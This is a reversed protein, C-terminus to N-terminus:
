TSEVFLGFKFASLVLFSVVFCLALYCYFEKPFFEVELQQSNETVPIKLFHDKSDSLNNWPGKEFRYRWGSFFRERIYVTDNKKFAALIDFHGDKNEFVCLGNLRAYNEPCHNELSNQTSSLIEIRPKWDKLEYVNIDNIKQLFKLSDKQYVQLNSVNSLFYRASLESATQNANWNWMLPLHASVHKVNFISHIGFSYANKERDFLEFHSVPDNHMQWMELGPYELFHNVRWYPSTKEDLAMATVPLNRYYSAPFLYFHDWHIRVLDGLLILFFFLLYKKPNKFTFWLCTLSILLFVCDIFGNTVLNLIKQQFNKTPDLHKFHEFHSLGSLLQSQLSPVFRLLGFFLFALLTSFGLVLIFKEGKPKAIWNQFGHGSLAALGFIFLIVYRGPRRFNNLVPTHYLLQSAGLHKGFAIWLGILGVLYLLRLNPNARKWSGFFVFFFGLGSIYIFVEGWAEGGWWSANAPSGLINPAVLSLLHLPRLGGTSFKEFDFVGASLKETSSGIQAQGEEFGSGDFRSTESVLHLFPVLMPTCYLLALLHGGLIWKLFRIKRLPTSHSSNSSISNKKLSLFVQWLDRLTYLGIFMATTISAQPHGGVAQMAVTLAYIFLTKVNPTDRLALYTALVIPMFAWGSLFTAHEYRALMTGSLSFCIGAWLSAAKHLRLYPGLKIFGFIGLSFHLSYFFYIGIHPSLPGFLIWTLPYLFGSQWYAHMPMGCQYSSSWFVLPNTWSWNKHYDWFYCFYAVLMDNNLVPSRKILIPLVPLLGLLLLMPYLVLPKFWFSNKRKPKLGPVIETM